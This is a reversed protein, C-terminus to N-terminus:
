EAPTSYNMSQLQLKVDWSTMAKWLLSAQRNQAIAKQIEIEDYDIGSQHIEAMIFAILRHFKEPWIPETSLTLDPTQCIYYLYITYTQGVGGLIYLNGANHDICFKQEDKKLERDTFDVPNYPTFSTKALNGLVVKTAYLLDTIGSISKATEWTDSALATLSIDRKILIKWPRDGEILDKIHNALSLGLDSDIRGTEDLFSNALDIIQQANM